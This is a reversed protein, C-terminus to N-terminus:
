AKELANTNVYCVRKSFSRLMENTKETYLM